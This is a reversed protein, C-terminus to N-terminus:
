PGRFPICFHHAVTQPVFVLCGGVQLGLASTPADLLALNCLHWIRSPLEVVGKLKATLDDGAAADAVAEMAIAPLVGAWPDSVASQQVGLIFVCIGVCADVFVFCIHVMCAAYLAAPVPLM